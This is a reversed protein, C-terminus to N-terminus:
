KLKERGGKERLFFSFMSVCVETASTEHMDVENDQMVGVSFPIHTVPLNM